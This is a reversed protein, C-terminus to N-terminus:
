PRTRNLGGAVWVCEWLRSEVADSAYRLYHICTGCLTINSLLVSLEPELSEPYKEAVCKFM